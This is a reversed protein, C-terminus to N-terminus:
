RAKLLVILAGEGGDQPKAQCYALVEDRQTLWGRVLTKLIGVKGPSSLGRGHIIRVVRQDHKRCHDLFEAILARAQDRTAGHLDLENNIVWRGRRLDRLLQRPLSPRLYHPEDGIDLRDELAIPRSLLEDLVAREHAQSQAPVPRPKPPPHLVKDPPPLPTADAVAQRFLDVEVPPPSPRTVTALKSRQSIAAKLASRVSTKTRM